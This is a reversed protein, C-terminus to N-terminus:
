NEIGKFFLYTIDMFHVDVSAILVGMYQGNVNAIQYFDLVGKSIAVISQDKYFYGNTYVGGIRIFDDLDKSIKNETLAYIFGNESLFLINKEFSHLLKLQYKSKNQKFDRSNPKFSYLGTIKGENNDNCIKDVDTSTLIFSVDKFSLCFASDHGIKDNLYECSICEIGTSKLRNVCEIKVENGKRDKKDIKNEIRYFHLESNELVIILSLAGSFHEPTFIQDLKLGTRIFKIEFEFSQNLIMEGSHMNYVEFYKTEEFSVLIHNPSIQMATRIRVNDFTKSFNFALDLNISYVTHDSIAVVTGILLNLNSVNDGPNEVFNIIMQKYNDSEKLKQLEIKGIDNLDQMNFVHIKNSLTFVFSDNDGGLIATYIPKSHKELTFLPGMGTPPLSQYPMVLACHNRSNKDCQTIFETLHKLHGYFVLSRSLIQLALSDPFDSISISCQLYMLNLFKIEKLALSAEESIKYSSAESFRQLNEFIESYTCCTFLAHSFEYNYYIHKCGLPLCINATLQVIFSPLEKIKRKNYQIKGDETVFETLQSTTNRSAQSEESALQKKKVIRDNYRFPKPNDKWTENFFDVVNSFVIERETSSLKSIYFSNAVEIFRRHYWYIVRTDDSEKEVM